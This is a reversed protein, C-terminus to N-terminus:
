HTWITKTSFTHLECSIYLSKIKNFKLVFILKKIFEAFHFYNLKHQIGELIVIYLYICKNPEYVLYWIGNPIPWYFCSLGFM